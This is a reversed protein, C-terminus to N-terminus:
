QGAMLDAYNFKTGLADTIGVPDGVLGLCQSDFVRAYKPLTVQNRAYRVGLPTVRWWGTRKSGDERTAEDEEILGWYALKATDGGVRITPLHVYEGEGGARLMELLVLAMAANIKRKYVKAFQTCCPCHEGDDLRDQLWQRAHELAGSEPSM